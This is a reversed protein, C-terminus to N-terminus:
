GPFFRPDGFIRSKGASSDSVPDRQIQYRRFFRLALYRTNQRTSQPITRYDGNKLQTLVGRKVLERVARLVTPHTCNFQEALKRLTPLRRSNEGDTQVLHYLKLM